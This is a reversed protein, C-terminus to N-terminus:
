EKATIEDLQSTLWQRVSRHSSLLKPKCFDVLSCSTCWKGYSPEPTIGSELLAHVSLATEETLSRLEEDFIVNTRRHPEGYFLAGTPISVDLMEELCIAQACLQVDDARHSKPKGHKYEVPFPRWLGQVGKLHVAIRRNQADYEDSSAHYEVMDAIGSLGLRHSVLRISYAMRITRRSESGGSDVNQHLVRGEATLKNESWSDELHILACQRKCFLYHQLASLMLLNEDTSFQNYAEIMNGM